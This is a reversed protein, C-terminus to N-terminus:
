GCKICLDIVAKEVIWRFVPGLHNLNVAAGVWDLKEIEFAWCLVVNALGYLSDLLNVPSFDIGVRTGDENEECSLFLNVIKDLPKFLLDLSVRLHLSVHLLGDETLGAVTTQREVLLSLNKFWCREVRAFHNNCGVDCLRRYRNVSDSENNVRAECFDSNIIRIETLM